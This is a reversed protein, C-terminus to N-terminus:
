VADPGLEGTRIRMAHIVPTVWLKGDGIKGTKAAQAIAAAVDTTFTLRGQTTNREVLAELGPEFIPIQGARLADIKAEAVDACVVANGIEAFGAGSVLGVYGTGVICIKM